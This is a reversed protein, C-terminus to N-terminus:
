KGPGGLSMVLSVLALVLLIFLITCVIGIMIFHSARGHKFDRELTERKQVGFAAALVSKTVQWRTLPVPKDNQATKNGQTDVM